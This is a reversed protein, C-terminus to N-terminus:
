DFINDLEQSEAYFTDDVIVQFDPSPKEPKSMGIEFLARSHAQGLGLVLFTCLVETELYSLRKLLEASPALSDGRYIVTPLTGLDCGMARSLSWLNDVIRELQTIREGPPLDSIPSLRYLRGREDLYRTLQTLQPTM